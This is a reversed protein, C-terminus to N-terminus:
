FGLGWAQRAEKWVACLKTYGGKTPHIENAWDGSVGKTDVGAPTLTGPTRVVYVGRAPDHLQGIADALRPDPAACGAGVRGAAREITEPATAAM